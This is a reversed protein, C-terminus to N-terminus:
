AKWFGHGSSGGPVGTRVSGSGLEYGTDSSYTFKWGVNNQAGNYMGMMYQWNQGMDFNEEGSNGVPKSVTWYSDTAAVYRRLNYGENYTGENGMYGKGWKSSIGKQQGNTQV